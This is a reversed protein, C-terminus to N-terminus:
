WSGRSHRKGCGCRSVNSVNPQFPTGCMTHNEQCDNRVSETHPFHHQHHICSRNVTTLHSPHVHPVVTNAYNTQVYHRTPSVRAQEYQTPSVQDPLQTMGFQFDAEGFGWYRNVM